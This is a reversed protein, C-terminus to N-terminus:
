PRGYLRGTAGSEAYGDLLTGVSAELRELRSAANPHTSFLLALNRDEPKAADLTHLVGVLGFPNYGGRAALVMGALDADYEDQRDLGKVLVETGAKFAREGFRRTLENDSRQSLEGALAVTWERGMAKRIAKVQDKEVVHSIEHGLVGALESEDRLREYLGRTVLVIGGPLAFANVDDSDMVGFRWPLNPRESQLALWLGVRNVYRQLAPDDVLPAAGLLQAAIGEGLEIEEQESIEESAEAARKGFDLLKGAEGLRGFAGAPGALALALLATTLTKMANM